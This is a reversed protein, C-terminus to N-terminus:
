TRKRNASEELAVYSRLGAQWATSLKRDNRSYSQLPAANLKLITRLALPTPQTVCIKLDAQPFNSTAERAGATAHVSAHRSVSVHCPFM